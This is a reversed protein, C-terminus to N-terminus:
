RHRASYKFSTGKSPIQIMKPINEQLHTSSHSFTNSLEINSFPEVSKASVIIKTNM